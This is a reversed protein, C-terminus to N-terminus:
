PAREQRLAAEVIAWADPALTRLDDATLPPYPRDRDTGAPIQSDLAKFDELLRRTVDPDDLAELFTQRLAALDGDAMSAAPPRTQQRVKEIFLADSVSIAVGRCQADIGNPDAALAAHCATAGTLTVRAILPRDAAGAMAETLVARTRDAIDAMTETGTLDVTVAAWRLVDLDHHRVGTIARDRVEVITCGKPGTERAHRGQLNGPFVIWRDGSHSIERRQHIHGLAWYDYGKAILGEIRCPAYRDHEGAPDEASTHLIGINLMGPVPGRYTASLDEEVARNPFSRGHLAVGLVDLKVTECTHSSFETVNPPPELNRTIVSRADHNGRILFCRRPALRAMQQAFFLGTSYDRWDGDYLDGAIIVFAVDEKIALDVLNSFARRTCHRTVDDPIQGNSALGTLPSDLHIDAAHLFKM